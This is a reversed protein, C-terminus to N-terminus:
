DRITRRDPQVATDNNTENDWPEAAHETRSARQLWEQKQMEARRPLDAVYALIMVVALMLLPGWTYRSEVDHFLAAVGLLAAVIALGIYTQRKM